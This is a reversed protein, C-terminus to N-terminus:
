MSTLNSGIQPAYRKWLTGSFAMEPLVLWLPRHDAPRGESPNLDQTKALIADANEMNEKVRGLKPAFQLCAIRM